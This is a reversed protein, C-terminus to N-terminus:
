KCVERSGGAGRESAESATTGGAGVGWGEVGAEWGRPLSLAFLARQTM